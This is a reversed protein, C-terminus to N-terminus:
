RLLDFLTQRNLQAYIAQAAKLTLDKSQIRAIAEPLDTDELNSREDALKVKTDEFREKLADLRAARLGQEGRANAIHTGAADLSDLSAKGAAARAADDPLELATAADNIITALDFTGSPTVINGFVNAKSDVPAVSLGSAVPIALPTGDSFLAAGRFDLANSLSGIEGAISRLEIAITARNDASLTGNVATLM